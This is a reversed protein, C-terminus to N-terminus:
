VTFSILFFYRERRVYVLMHYGSYLFLPNSFNSLNLNKLNKIM